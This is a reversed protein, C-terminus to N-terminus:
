HMTSNLDWVESGGQDKRQQEAELAVRATLWPAKGAHLEGKLM